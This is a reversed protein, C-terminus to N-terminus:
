RAGPPAAREDPSSYMQRAGNRQMPARDAHQERNDHFGVRNGHRPGASLQQQQRKHWECVPAYDCQACKWADEIDVGRARRKGLWLQSFSLINERLWKEDYEVDIIGLTSKDKQYQYELELKSVPQFFLAKEVAVDLLKELTNVTVGPLGATILQCTSLRLEAHLNLKLYEGFAFKNFKGSVLDDFLTKYLMVQMSNSLFQKPHPLFPKKRTKFELFTIEGSEPDYRM